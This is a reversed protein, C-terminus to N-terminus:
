DETMSFVLPPCLADKLGRRLGEGGDWPVRAGRAGSARAEVSFRVSRGWNAVGAGGVRYVYSILVLAIGGEGGCGRGVRLGAGVREKLSPKSRLGWRIGGM